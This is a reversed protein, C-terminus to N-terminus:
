IKPASVALTRPAANVTPSGSPTMRSGNYLLRLNRRAREWLQAELHDVGEHFSGTPSAESRSSSTSNMEQGMTRVTEAVLTKPHMRDPAAARPPRPDGLVVAPRTRSLTSM